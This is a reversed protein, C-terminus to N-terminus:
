VLVTFGVFAKGLGGLLLAIRRVFGNKM